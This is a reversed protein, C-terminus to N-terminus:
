IYSTLKLIEERLQPIAYILLWQIFYISFIAILAEFRFMWFKSPIYKWIINYIPDIISRLFQPRWRVWFLFLWSLIVDFIILYLIIDTFIMFILGIQVM